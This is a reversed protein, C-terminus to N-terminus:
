LFYFRLHLVSLFKKGFGLLRFLLCCVIVVFVLLFILFTDFFVGGILVGVKLRLLSILLVFLIIWTLVITITILTMTMTMALTFMPDTRFCWTLALCFAIYTFFFSFTLIYVLSPFNLLFSLLFLPYLIIHRSTSLSLLTLTFDPVTGKYFLFLSLFLWLGLGM